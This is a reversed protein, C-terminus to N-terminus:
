IPNKSRIWSAAGLYRRPQMPRSSQYRAGFQLAKKILNPEDAKEPYFYQARHIDRFSDLAGAYALSEMVKKNIARLDRTKSFDFLGRFAGSKLRAAIMEEVAAEGVGKIAGLGYRIEGRRNVSFKIGSENLMRGKVPIGMRRSEEM